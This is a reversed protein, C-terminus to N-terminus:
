AALGGSFVNYMQLLLVFVGAGILELLHPDQGLVFCPTIELFAGVPLLWLHLRLACRLLNARHAAHQNYRLRLVAGRHRVPLGEKEPEEGAYM